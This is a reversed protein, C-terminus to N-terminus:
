ARSKIRKDIPVAPRSSIYELYKPWNIRILGRKSDTNLDVAIGRECLDKSRSILRAKSISVSIRRSFDEISIFIDNNEM